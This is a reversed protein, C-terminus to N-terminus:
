VTQGGNIIMYSHAILLAASNFFDVGGGIVQV